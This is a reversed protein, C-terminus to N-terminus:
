NCPVPFFEMLYLCTFCEVQIKFSHTFLLVKKARRDVSSNASNQASFELEEEPVLEM